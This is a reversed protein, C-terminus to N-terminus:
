TVMERSQELRLFIAVPLSPEPRRVAVVKGKAACDGSCSPRTSVLFRRSVEGNDGCRISAEILIRCSARAALTMESAALTLANACAGVGPRLVIPVDLEPPAVLRSLSAPM